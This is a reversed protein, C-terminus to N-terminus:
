HSHSEEHEHAVILGIYIMTLFTFIFAQLFSVFLGLPVLLLPVGFPALKLVNYAVAHEGFINAFLRLSLTVIRALHSVMEVVIFIAAVFLNLPIALVIPLGQIPVPGVFHKLYAALGVGAIGQANYYLFAFIALGVTVGYSSTPTGLGPVMGSLNSLLIFLFFTGPLMLYKRGHPGAVQDLLSRLWLIYKELIQQFAGPAELSFSRRALPFVVASGAVILSGMVLSDPAHLGTAKELLLAPISQEAAM